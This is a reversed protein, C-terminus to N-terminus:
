AARTSTHQEHHKGETGTNQLPPNPARGHLRLYTSEVERMHVELEKHQKTDALMHARSGPMLLVDKYPIANRM